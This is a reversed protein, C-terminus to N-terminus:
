GLDIPWRLTIWTGTSSSMAAIGPATVQTEDAEVRLCVSSRQGSDLGCGELAAVVPLLERVGLAVGQIRVALEGVTSGELRHSDTSRTSVSVSLDAHHVTNLAAVLARTVALRAKRANGSVPVAVESSSVPLTFARGRCVDAVAREVTAILDFTGAQSPKDPLSRLVSRLRGRLLSVRDLTARAESAQRRLRPAEDAAAVDILGEIVDGGLADEIGQATESILRTATWQGVSQPSHSLLTAIGDLTDTESTWERPVRDFAAVLGISAGTRDRVPSIAASVLGDVSAGVLGRLDPDDTIRRLGRHASRAAALAPVLHRTAFSDPTPLERDSVGPAGAWVTVAGARIWVLGIPARTSAAALRAAAEM